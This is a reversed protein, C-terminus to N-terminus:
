LSIHLGTKGEFLCILMDCYVGELEYTKKIACAKKNYQFLQFTYTDNSNLIVKCMNHKRSGKFNFCISVDDDTIVFRFDSAGVMTTLKHIGGMQNFITNVQQQKEDQTYM